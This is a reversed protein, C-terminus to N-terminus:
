RYYSFYWIKYDKRYPSYGGSLCIMLARVHMLILPLSSWSSSHEFSASNMDVFVLVYVFSRVKEKWEEGLCM